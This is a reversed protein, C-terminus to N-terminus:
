WTYMVGLAITDQTKKTGGKFSLKDSIDHRYEPRVIISKGIKFEPTVTIEKLKQATGTRLGDKDNFYEARITGSVLDSFDYKVYGAIGYWKATGGGAASKEEAAYDTNLVVTTNKVPKFTGVWDFLFRNDSSSDKEPGFMVNFILAAQESPTYGVTLGATKGKNNDDTNDWGNVLYLNASVQDSLAYGAMLGTHTFPIAYNFLLSRSYNLNDRAEIVEAGHMTVFKGFQLKLGKGVPAMYTIYAETLDFEDDAKGLGRSHIFKATEGASLKLKYGAGGVPADKAFIIQALDFTFSNAKHDFVRLDNESPDPSEFNYNYGGQLYISLGLAAKIDAMPNAAPRADEAKVAYALGLVMIFTLVAKTILKKM